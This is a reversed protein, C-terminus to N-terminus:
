VSARLARRKRRRQWACRVYLHWLHDSSSIASLPSCCRSCRCASWCRSGSARSGIRVACAAMREPEQRRPGADSTRHPRDESASGPRRAGVGRRLAPRHYVPQLVAYGARLRASERSVRNCAARRGHIAGPQQRSHTGRVHRGRRRGRGIQSAPALPQPAAPAARVVRRLSEAQHLRPEAPLPPLAQTAYIRRALGM